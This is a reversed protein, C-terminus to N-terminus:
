RPSRRRAWTGARGRVGRPPPGAAPPRAPVRGAGYTASGRPSSAKGKLQNPNHNPKTKARPGHTPPPCAWARRSGGRCPGSLQPRGAGRACVAGAPWASSDPPPRLTGAPLAPSSRSAGAWVECQKFVALALGHNSQGDRPRGAKVSGHCSGPLTPLGRPTDRRPTSRTRSQGPM